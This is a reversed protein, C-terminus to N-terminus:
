RSLYAVAVLALTGALALLPRVIPMRWSLNRACNLKLARLEQLQKRALSLQWGNTAVNLATVAHTEARTLARLRLHIEAYKYQAWFHNSDLDVAAELAELARPVDHNVAHAIGLMTRLDVTTPSDQCAQELAGIYSTLESSSVVHPDRWPVGLSLSPRLPALSESM